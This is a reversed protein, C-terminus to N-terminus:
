STVGGRMQNGMTYSRVLDRLSITHWKRLQCVGFFSDVEMRACRSAEKEFLPCKNLPVLPYSRDGGREGGGVKTSHNDCNWGGAM